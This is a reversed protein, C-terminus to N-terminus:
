SQEKYADMAAVFACDVCRGEDREMEMDLPKGCACATAAAPQPVRPRHLAKQGLAWARALAPGLTWAQQHTM